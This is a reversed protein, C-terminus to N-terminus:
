PHTHEIMAKWKAHYPSLSRTQDRRLDHLSTPIGSCLVDVVEGYPAEELYAFFRGWGRFDFKEAPPGFIEPVANINWGDDWLRGIREEVFDMTNREPFRPINECVISDFEAINPLCAGFLDSDISTIPERAFFLRMLGAGYGDQHIVYVVWPFMIAYRERDTTEAASYKDMEIFEIVRTQPQEEVVLLSSEYYRIGPRLLHDTIGFTEPNLRSGHTSIVNQQLTGGVDVDLIHQDDELVRIKPWAM